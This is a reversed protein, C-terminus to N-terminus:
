VLFYHARLLFTLKSFPSSIMASLLAAEVQFVFLLFHCLAALIRSDFPGLQGQGGGSMTARVLGTQIKPVQKDWDRGM